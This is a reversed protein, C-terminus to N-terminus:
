RGFRRQRQYFEALVGKFLPIDFDPFYQKRFVYEANRSQIPIAESIRKEDSTRIVLDVLPVNLRSEDFVGDVIAQNVEWSYYYPALIFVKLKEGKSSEELRHAAEKYIHGMPHKDLLALDGIFRFQAYALLTEDQSWEMFQELEAQLM